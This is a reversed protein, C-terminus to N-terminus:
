RFLPAEVKVYRREKPKIIEKHVPFTPVARNLFKFTLERRSIEGELEVYHKVGLVLDVNIHIESVMTYIECM